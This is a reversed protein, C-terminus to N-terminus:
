APMELDGIALKLFAYVRENRMMKIRVGARANYLSFRAAFTRCCTSQPRATDCGRRCVLFRSKAPLTKELM